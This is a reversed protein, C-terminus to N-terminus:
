RWGEVTALASRLADATQRRVQASQEVATAHIRGATEQAQAIRESRVQEAGKIIDAADRLAVSPLYMPAWDSRVDREVEARVSSLWPGLYSQAGLKAIVDDLIALEQAKTIGSM